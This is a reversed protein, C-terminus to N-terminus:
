TLNMTVCISSTGIFDEVNEGNKDPDLSTTKVWIADNMHLWILLGLVNSNFSKDSKGKRMVAKMNPMYAPLQCKNLVTTCAKKICFTANIPYDLISSYDNDEDGSCSGDSEEGKDVKPPGKMGEMVVGFNGCPNRKGARQNILVLDATMETVKQTLM